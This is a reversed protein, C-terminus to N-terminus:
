LEVLYWCLNLKERDWGRGQRPQRNTQRGARMGEQQSGARRRGAHGGSVCGGAWM